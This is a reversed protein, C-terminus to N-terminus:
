WPGSVEINAFHLSIANQQDSPMAATAPNISAAHAGNFPNVAIVLFLLLCYLLGM